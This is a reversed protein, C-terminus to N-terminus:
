LTRKIFNYQLVIETNLSTITKGTSPMNHNFKPLALNLNIAQQTYYQERSPHFPAVGNVIQNWFNQKIISLIIGICDQQHILNIPAAPNELNEKGALFRVPHRDDGILGGFRIITTKFSITDRLLAEVLVLQQGSDTVPNVKTEETVTANGEGYVSTSSVFLVQTVTSKEIHPIINKIKAVFTLETEPLLGTNKRRLQPPINIILTKSSNLFEEIPGTVSKSDLSILFPDIGMMRLEPIKGESTTSGKVLFGKRKLATALPLGLWGCGLISIQTM